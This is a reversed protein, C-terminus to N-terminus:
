RKPPVRPRWQISVVKDMQKLVRQYERCNEDGKADQLVDDAHSRAAALLEAHAQLLEEYTNHKEHDNEFRM